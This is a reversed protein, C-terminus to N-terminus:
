IFVGGAKLNRELTIITDKRKKKKKKGMDMQSFYTLTIGPSRIQTNEFIKRM